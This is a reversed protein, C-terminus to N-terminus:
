KVVIPILQEEKALMDKNVYAINEAQKDYAEEICQADNHFMDPEIHYLQVLRKEISRHDELTGDELIHQIELNNARLNRCVLITRHCALPEKEACLLAIRHTNMETRLWRIGEIFRPERALREYQVQGHRYCQPNDSRAGLERGMFVYVINRETLSRKLNERNYQPNYRSYPISRVDCIMTMQHQRLLGIFVEISHTSHGITFIEASM